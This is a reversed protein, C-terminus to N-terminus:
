GLLSGLLYFFLGVTGSFLCFSGFAAGGLLGLLVFLGGGLEDLVAEGGFPGFGALPDLDLGILFGAREGDLVEGLVLRENFFKTVFLLRVHNVPVQVKHMAHRVLKREGHRGIRCALFQAAEDEMAHLPVDPELLNDKLRLGAVSQGTGNLAAGVMAPFGPAVVLFVADSLAEREAVPLRRLLLQFIGSFHISTAPKWGTM